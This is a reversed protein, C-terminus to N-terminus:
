IECKNTLYTEEYYCSAADQEDIPCVELEYISCVSQMYASEIQKREKVISKKLMKYFMKMSIEVGNNFDMEVINLLEQVATKNEM